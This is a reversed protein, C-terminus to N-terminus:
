NENNDMKATGAFMKMFDETPAKACSFWSYIVKGIETQSNRFTLCYHLTYNKREYTTHVAARVLAIYEKNFYVKIHKDDLTYHRGKLEPTAAIQKQAM